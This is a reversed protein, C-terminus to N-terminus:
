VATITVELIRRSHPAYFVRYVSSAGDVPMTQGAIVVYHEIKGDPRTRTKTYTEEMGVVGERVDKQVVRLKRYFRPIVIADSLLVILAAGVPLPTLTAGLLYWLGGAFVLAMTTMALVTISLRRIIDELGARQSDTLPTM